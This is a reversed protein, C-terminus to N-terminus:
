WFICRNGKLTSFYRLFFGAGKNQVRKCHYQFKSIVFFFLFFTKPCSIFWLITRSYKRMKFSLFNLYGLLGFRLQFWLFSWQALFLLSVNRMDSEKHFYQISFTNQIKLGSIFNENLKCYNDYVWAMRNPYFYEFISIM